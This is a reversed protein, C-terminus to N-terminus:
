LNQPVLQLPVDHEVHRLLSFFSDTIRYLRPHPLFVVSLALFTVTIPGFCQFFFLAPNPPTPSLLLYIMDLHLM